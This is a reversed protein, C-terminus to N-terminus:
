RRVRKIKGRLGAGAVPRGVLDGNNGVVLVLVDNGVGPAHVVDGAGIVAGVRARLLHLAGGRGGLTIDDIWAGESAVALREVSGGELVEKDVLQM